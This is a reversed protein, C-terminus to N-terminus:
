SAADKKAASISSALFSAGGEVDDDDEDVFIFVVLSVATGSAVRRLAVSCRSWAVGTDYEV